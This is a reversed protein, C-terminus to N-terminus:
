SASHSMTQRLRLTQVDWLKLSGDLSGTAFIPLTPSFGVAEVSDTNGEFSGLIKGNGLHLLKATGDESGTGAVTGDTKVDVCTITDGHWRADGGSLKRVLHGNKPDWVAFSGDESGSVVTKGDPTFMGCSVPGTHGGSFVSMCSGTPANWMWVTADSTGALLVAGRPHWKIWTIESPGQLNQVLKGDQVSWVKVVGDMGGTAVLKGDCSFGASIVSDTHGSLEFAPQGTDTRWVYAKDDEGGTVGVDEDEGDDLVDPGEDADSDMAVDEDEQVVEQAEGDDLYVAGEDDGDISETDHPEHEPQHDNM